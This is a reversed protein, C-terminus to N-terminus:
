GSWPVAPLTAANTAELADESEWVAFARYEVRGADYLWRVDLCGPHACYLPDLEGSIRFM